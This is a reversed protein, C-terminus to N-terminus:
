TLVQELDLFEAGFHQLFVSNGVDKDVIGAHSHGTSHDIGVVIAPVLHDIDVDPAVEVDQSLEQRAHLLSPRSVHNVDGAHRLLIGMGHQTDITPSFALCPTM